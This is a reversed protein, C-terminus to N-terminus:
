SNQTWSDSYINYPSSGGLVAPMRLRPVQANANRLVNLGDQALAIVTGNQPVPYTSYLRVTLNYLIAAEYEPPLIIEQTLSTFVPLEAKTLIHLQYLGASPVPWFHLTGTPYGSDYFVHSPWTTLSKLAIRSYDEYSELIGLPYDVQNEGSPNLLTFYAGELRDPRLINFDGGTGVSYTQAGTSLLSTKVLHYVLWRKRSWQSMMYNLEAFADNVDEPLADQGVGLVTAKKLALTILDLPTTM